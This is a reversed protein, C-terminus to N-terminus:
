LRYIFTFLNRKAPSTVLDQCTKYFNEGYINSRWIIMIFSCSFIFMTSCPLALSFGNCLSQPCKPELAVECLVSRSLKMLPLMAYHLPEGGLRPIVTVWPAKLHVDMGPGM